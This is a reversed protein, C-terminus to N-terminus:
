IEAIDKKLIKPDPGIKEAPKTSSNEKMQKVDKESKMPHQQDNTQNSVEM